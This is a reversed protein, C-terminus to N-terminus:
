QGVSLETPIVVVNSPDIGSFAGAFAVQKGILGAKDVKALVDTKVLSNIATAVDLYDIQNTFQSFSIFGVADRLATGILVPGTAM